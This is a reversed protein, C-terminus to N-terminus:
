YEEQLWDDWLYQDLQYFIVELEDDGWDFIFHYNIDYEELRLRGNLHIDEAIFVDYVPPSIYCKVFKVITKELVKDATNLLVNTKGCCLTARCVDIQIDLNSM